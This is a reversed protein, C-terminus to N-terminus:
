QAPRIAPASGRQWFRAIHPWFPRVFGIVSQFMGFYRFLRPLFMLVNIVIGGGDMDGTSDYASLRLGSHAREVDGQRLEGLGPPLVRDRSTGRMPPWGSLPTPIGASRSIVRAHIRKAAVQLARKAIHDGDTVLIVRRREVTTM